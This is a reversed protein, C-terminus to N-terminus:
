EPSQHDPFFDPDVVQDTRFPCSRPFVDIPLGTENAAKVRAARYVNPMRDGVYTDLSPNDHAIRAMRRRQEGITQRWSRGSREPQFQWKLLHVILVFLRTGLERADSRSM